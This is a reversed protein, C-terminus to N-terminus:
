LRHAEADDSSWHAAACQGVAPPRRQFKQIDIVGLDV